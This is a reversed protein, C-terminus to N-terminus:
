DRYEEIQETLQYNMYDRKREAVMTKEETVEGLIKSRVPGDPPFLEKIARAAFDVCGEAMIPHVVKSAGMFSAGGPADNGLGTRRLGEEYQKDRGERASKDKEVLELYKLAIGSLEYSEITEALNEYFDPSEEPGLLDDELRVIASGDEQEEVDAQDFLDVEATDAFESDGHAEPAVFRNYDQPIPFETAM